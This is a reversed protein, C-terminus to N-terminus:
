HTEAGLQKWRKRKAIKAVTSGDIGFEQSLERLTGGRERRKRIELIDADTLKSGRGRSVSKGHQLGHSHRSKEIMDHVNDACTGLFLHEPNVCSPNDCTHCVYFGDPIKTGRANEYAYRHAYQQFSTGARTNGLRMVGYGTKIKYGQWEICGKLSPHGVRSSFYDNLRAETIQLRPRAM